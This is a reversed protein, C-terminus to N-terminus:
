GVPLAAIRVVNRLGDDDKLSNDNVKDNIQDSNVLQDSVGPEMTEDVVKIFLKQKPRVPSESISVKETASYNSNDTELIPKALYDSDTQQANIFSTESELHPRNQVDCTASWNKMLSVANAIRTLLLNDSM